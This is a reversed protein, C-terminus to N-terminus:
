STKLWHPWDLLTWIWTRAFYTSATCFRSSWPDSKVKLCPHEAWGERRTQM